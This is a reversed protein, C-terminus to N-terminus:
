DKGPMPKEPSAGGLLNLEFMKHFSEMESAAGSLWGKMFSASDLSRASEVIKELLGNSMEAQSSSVDPLEIFQSGEEPTCDFEINIKM